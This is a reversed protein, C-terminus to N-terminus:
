CHLAYPRSSIFAVQGNGDGCEPRRVRGARGRGARGQGAEAIAGREGAM